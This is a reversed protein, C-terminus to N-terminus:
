PVVITEESYYPTNDAKWSIQMKYMGKSLKSLEIKQKGLEDLKITTEFDKSSDSPRFFLISGNVKKDRLEPQFQLELQNSSFCHEVTTSLANANKMEDIKSQYALEQKYYDESVLDFKQHMSMMVMTIVLGLFSAYLIAIKTGWSIKM